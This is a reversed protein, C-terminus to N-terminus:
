KSKVTVNGGFAELAAGMLVVRKYQNVGYKRISLDKAAASKLKVDGIKGIERLFRVYKAEFRPTEYLVLVKPKTSKVVIETPADEKKKEEGEENKEETKEETKEENKEETKEENAQALVLLFSLFLWVKM